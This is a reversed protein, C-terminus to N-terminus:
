PFSIRDLSKYDPQYKNVYFLIGIQFPIAYKRLYHEGQIIDGSSYHGSKQFLKTCLFPVNLEFKASKFNSSLNIDGSM